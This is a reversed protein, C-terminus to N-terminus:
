RDVVVAENARQEEIPLENLDERTLFVTDDEHCAECSANQGTRRAISHPTAYKYTPLVEFRDLADEVYYEFTESFVPVRRVVVYDWPREASRAANRGINFGFYSRENVYYPLGGDDDAVHCNACNNYPQAHCVQCQLWVEALPHAHERHYEVAMFQDSAEHCNVCRPPEPNDYRADYPPGDGHIWERTHCDVCEKEAQLRHVDPKREGRDVDEGRGIFEREVRSGHCGVCNLTTSPSRQFVHGDILGGEAQRPRSVHCDGCGSVHCQGCQRDLVPVLASRNEAGARGLVIAETDGSLGRTEAHLTRAFRSVTAAHCAYCVSDEYGASPVPDMDSHAERRSTAPEVGGHCEVCRFRAHQTDFFEDSVLVAIDPGM